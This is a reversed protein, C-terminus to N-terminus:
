GEVLMRWDVELMDVATEERTILGMRSQEEVRVEIAVLAVVLKPHSRPYLTRPERCGRCLLQGSGYSTLRAM